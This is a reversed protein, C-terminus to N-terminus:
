RPRRPSRSRRPSADARPRPLRGDPDQDAAGNFITWAAYVHDQFATARSTTSRSGSSTRSTASRRPEDPQQHARAAERRQGQGLAAGPRRLLLRRDRREPAPRGGLVRQVAADGPLRSGAHRLRREPRHQEDLEAAHGAHRDLRLRLGAGPQQWRARRRPDTRASTSTTSPASSRSSSSRRASWTRPAPSSRSGPSRATRTTAGRRCTGPDPKTRGPPVPYGGGEVPSSAVVNTGAFAWPAEAQATAALAAAGLFMVVSISALARRM